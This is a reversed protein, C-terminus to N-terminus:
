VADHHAGVIVGVTLRPEDYPNRWTHRTGNQIVTDGATLEKTAGDDLELVCRTDWRPSPRPWGEDTPVSMMRMSPSQLTSRAAGSPVGVRIATSTGAERRRLLQEFGLQFGECRSTCEGQAQIWKPM